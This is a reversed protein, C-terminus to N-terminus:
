GGVKADPVAMHFVARNLSDAHEAGALSPFLCGGGLSWFWALLLHKLFPFFCSALGPGAPWDWRDPLMGRLKLTSKLIWPTGDRGWRSAVM